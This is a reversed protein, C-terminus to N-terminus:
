ILFSDWLLVLMQSTRSDRTEQICPILLERGSVTRLGVGTRGDEEPWEAKVAAYRPASDLQLAMVVSCLARVPGVSPLKAFLISSRYLAEPGWFTM